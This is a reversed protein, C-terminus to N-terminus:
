SNNQDDNISPQAYPYNIEKVLNIIQNLQSSDPFVGYIGESHVNTFPSEFLTELKIAGYKGIHNQLMQIFKIQTPNLNPNQHIFEKFQKDLFKSDLGIIRRIALDLHGATDPYFEKLLELNVDPHQTLVLSILEQIDKENAPIGNKIKHLTENTDFLRILVDEVREKYAAMELGKGQVHYEEIKVDSDSVDIKPTLIPDDESDERFKMISRLELRLVELEKITINQWYKSDLTKQLVASKAKVQNLNNKLSNIRNLIEGKLDEFKGSQILLSNQSQTLLLDFSYASTEGRTNIWQMLPAITNRLQNKVEGSFSNILNENELLKIDRIHEKVSITNTAALTSIDKLILDATVDFTQKDFKNLATEALLIREEFVRQMLSKSVAPEVTKYNLEFWEFNGWHDFIRFKNKDLGPGFLNKCLRTGRGIMQWFKVYSKLPKAFVLNLLEPIDIGTDLMDVSIAVTLDKNNGIGKLDDILQDARTDYNDIVQCFRGGYQPYMEDFVEQLLIAHRHNRAFIISKGLRGDPFKMGNEMLNRIIKRNTDKNFIYKDLEDSDYDIMEPNTLQDELQQQQERSLEAYRIGERLFKTTVNFVEYRSLYPPDNLIADDYSYHATPDLPRCDFMEFTNRNVYDVPTATLGIQMCDFYKFLEGYTNYISRHSEDAIILDFFGVDFNQYYQNMAPYTALYIRKSKEKSSSFNLIVLPSGPLYEQFVNKAQKRLERRDCLFLINKAWNHRTMVDCISIAVRTKGTGTAQVILAKRRKSQFKELVRKIAEIQYPRDTISYNIKASDLNQRQNHQFILYQLSDKSYFGFIKRPPENAADNWIHTEFGNTYFIIPRQGHMKELGDAYLQAQKRGINSDKSTKKAEIVAIPKGDAWLVYDAYGIGSDTPQHKVEYEPYVDETQKNDPDVNWGVSVLMEDILIRRTQEESFNLQNSINASNVLLKELEEKSKQIQSLKEREKQLEGLVNQLKNEKDLLEKLVNLKEKQWDSDKYYEPSKFDPVSNLNGACYSAYIWKSLQHASSLLTLANESNLQAGHAAKNGNLRLSHLINIIPIPVSKKFPENILLNILNRDNSEFPLNLITYIIDVFREAFLRLKVASTSPDAYVYDEAINGLAALEPLKQELFKFNSTSVISFM